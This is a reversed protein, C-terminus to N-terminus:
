NHLIKGDAFTEVFLHHGDTRFVIAGDEDTRLTKVQMQKYREM